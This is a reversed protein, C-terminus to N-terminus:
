GRRMTRLRQALLGTMAVGVASYIAMFQIAGSGLSFELSSGPALVALAFVLYSGAPVIFGLVIYAVVFVTRLLVFMLAGHHGVRLYLVAGVLRFTLAQVTLAVISAGLASWGGGGVSWAAMVLPMALGVWFMSILLHSALYGALLRNLPLADVSTWEFISHQGQLMIEEAGCRLSLYCCSAGLATLVAVLVDPELGSEMVTFVDHKPWWLLLALAQVALYGLSTVHVIGPRAIGTLTEQVLPNTKIM